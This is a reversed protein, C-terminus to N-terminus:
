SIVDPLVYTFLKVLESYVTKVIYMHTKVTVEQDENHLEERYLLNYKELLKDDSFDVYFAQRFSCMITQRYVIFIINSNSIIKM